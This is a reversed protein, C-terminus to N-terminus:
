EGRYGFYYDLMLGQSGDQRTFSSSGVRRLGEGDSGEDPEWLASLEAIGLESLLAVELAGVQGDGNRDQFLKLFQWAADTADVKGDGNEDMEALEEFGNLGDVRNGVLEAGGDLLGNMNEDYFLLADDGQVFATRVAEGSGTLDFLVGDSTERLDLGDGAVDLVVPDGEQMQGGGSMSIELREFRIEFHRASVEVVEGGESQVTRAEIETISISVSVYNLSFQGGGTPAQAGQLAAADLEPAAQQSQAFSEMGKVLHELAQPDIKELLAALLMLDRVNQDSLGLEQLTERLRSMAGSGGLGAGRAGVARNLLGLAGAGGGSSRSGMSISLSQASLSFSSAQLSYLGAGNISLGGSGRGGEGTSLDVSDRPAGNPVANEPPRGNAHRPLFEPSTHGRILNQLGQMGPFQSSLPMLAM